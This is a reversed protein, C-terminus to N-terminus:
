DVKIGAAKAVAESAANGAVGPRNEVIVPQGLSDAMGGGVLRAFV